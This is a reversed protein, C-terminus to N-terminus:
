FKGSLYSRIRVIVAIATLVFGALLASHPVAKPLGAALSVQGAQVFLSAVKWSQLAAFTCCALLVATTFVNLADRWRGRIRSSFLDMNLHDGDYAIAAMGIFVGWITLYVLIEEAWFIAQGFLYRSVINAANISVGALMLTGLLWHPLKGFVFRAM